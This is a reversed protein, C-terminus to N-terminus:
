FLVNHNASSSYMLKGCKITDKEENKINQHELYGKPDDEEEGEALNNDTSTDEHM